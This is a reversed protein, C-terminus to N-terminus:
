ALIKKYVVGDERGSSAPYYGKRVGIEIFGLKQYLHVAAANSVRVELFVEKIGRALLQLLMFDLLTRGLQQGQLAPDIAINLLHAEDLVTMVIAYGVVVTDVELVWCLFGTSLCDAFVAEGWPFPFCRQEIVAIAPVDALQM